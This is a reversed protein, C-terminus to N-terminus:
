YYSREHAKGFHSASSANHENKLCSKGMLHTRNVYIQQFDLLRLDQTSQGDDLCLQCSSIDVMNVAICNSRLACHNLCLHLSSLTSEFRHTKGFACNSLTHNLHVHIALESAIQFDDMVSHQNNYCRRDANNTSAFFIIIIWIDLKFSGPMFFAM